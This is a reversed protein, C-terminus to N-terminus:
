NDRKRDRNRYKCINKDEKGKLGLLKKRREEKM